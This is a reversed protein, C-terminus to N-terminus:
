PGSQLCTLLDAQAASGGEVSGVCVFLYDRSLQVAFRSLLNEFDMLGVWLGWVRFYYKWICIHLVFIYMYMRIAVDSMILSLSLQMVGVAIKPFRTDIMLNDTVM